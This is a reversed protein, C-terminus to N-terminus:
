FGYTKAAAAATAGKHVIEGLAALFDVPRAGEFV